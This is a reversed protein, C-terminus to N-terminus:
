IMGIGGEVEERRIRVDVCCVFRGGGGWRWLM